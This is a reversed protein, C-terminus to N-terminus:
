HISNLVFDLNWAKIFLYPESLRRKRRENHKKSRSRKKRGKKEREKKREGKKTKWKKEKKKLQVNFLLALCFLPWMNTKKWLKEGRGNKKGKKPLFILNPIKEGLSTLINKRRKNERWRELKKRCQWRGLDNKREDASDHTLQIM